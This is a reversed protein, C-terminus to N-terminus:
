EPDRQNLMWQRVLHAVPVVIVLFAVAMSMGLLFGRATRDPATWLIAGVVILSLTILGGYLILENRTPWKM